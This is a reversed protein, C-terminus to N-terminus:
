GCKALKEGRTALTASVPNQRTKPKEQDFRGPITSLMQSARTIAGDGAAREVLANERCPGRACLARRFTAAVNAASERPRRFPTSILHSSGARTPPTFYQPWPHLFCVLRRWSTGLEISSAARQGASFLILAPRATRKELM